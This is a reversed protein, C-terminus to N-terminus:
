EKPMNSGSPLIDTQVTLQWMAKVLREMEKIDTFYGFSFRLTGRPYTGLARHASESGHFGAEAIIGWDKELKEAVLSEPMFDTQISIVPIRDKYGPGIIHVGSVHQIKRIFYEVMQLGNNCLFRVKKQIVFELARHLGAIAPMNLSAMEYKERMSSGGLMEAARESAIFGCAEKPGLLGYGGYFTFIDINWLNMFTPVYGGSFAGNVIFILGNRRAFEGLEKVPLVSGCVESVYNLILGKTNPRLMGRIVTLVDTDKAPDYLYLQGKKDCPIKTYEVGGRGDSGTEHGIAELAGIVEDNELSSVLVHDGEKFLGRITQAMATGVTETFVVKEAGPGRFLTSIQERTEQVLKESDMAEWSAMAEAVGEAMPQTVSIQNFYIKDM